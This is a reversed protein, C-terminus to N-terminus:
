NPVILSEATQWLIKGTHANQIDLVAYDHLARWSANNDILSWGEFEPDILAMQQTNKHRFAFLYGESMAVLGGLNQHDLGNLILTKRDISKVPTDMPIKDIRMQADDGLWSVAFDHLGAAIFPKLSAAAGLELIENPKDLLAIKAFGGEVWAVLARNEAVKLELTRVPMSTPITAVATMQGTMPNLSQCQIGHKGQAPEFAACVLIQHNERPELVTRTVDFDDRNLQIKRRIDGNSSMVILSVEHTDGVYVGENLAFVFDNGVAALDDIRAGSQTDSEYLQVVQPQNPNRRDTILGYGKFCVPLETQTCQALDRVDTQFAMAIWDTSSAAAFIQTPLKDDIKVLIPGPEGPPPDLKKPPVPTAENELEDVNVATHTVDTKSECAIAFLALLAFSFVRSCRASM